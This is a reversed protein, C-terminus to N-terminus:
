LRLHCVLILTWYQDVVEHEYVTTGNDDIIWFLTTLEPRSRVECKLCVSLQGESVKSNECSFRAAVACARM